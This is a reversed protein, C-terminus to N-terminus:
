DESPTPLGLGEFLRATSQKTMTTRQGVYNSKLSDYAAATKETPAILPQGLRAIEDANRHGAVKILLELAKVPDKLMEALKERQTPYCREFQVMVDVVQPILKTVQAQKDRVQKIEAAAKEMGLSSIQIQEIVKEPLTLGQPTTPM